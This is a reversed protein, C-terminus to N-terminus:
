KQAKSDLGLHKKISELETKLYQNETELKQNKASLEQVSKILPIIFDGYRLSYTENSTQPIDIGPFHTYGSEKMAQEVEQALLGIFRQKKIDSHDIKQVLNTPTGWIQHLIEPNQNYSVPRLRNIFELGIVDEQI